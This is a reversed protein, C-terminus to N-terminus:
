ISGDELGDILDNLYWLAKLLDEKGNKSKWRSVYKIVQAENWPMQNAKNYEHPSIAMETYHSPNINGEETTTFPEKNAVIRYIGSEDYTNFFGTEIDGGTFEIPPRHEYFQKIIVDPNEIVADAIHSHEKLILKFGLGKDFSPVTIKAFNQMAFHRMYCDYKGTAYPRKLTMIDHSTGLMPNKTDIYVKEEPKEWVVNTLDDSHLAPNEGKEPATEIIYEDILDRIHQSSCKSSKPNAFAESVKQKLKHVDVEDSSMKELDHSDLSQTHDARESDGVGFIPNAEDFTLESDKEMKRKEVSLEDGKIKESLPVIEEEWEEDHEKLFETFSIEAGDKFGSRIYSVTRKDDSINFGIISVNSCVYEAVSEDEENAEISIKLFKVVNEVTKEEPTFVVRLGVIM